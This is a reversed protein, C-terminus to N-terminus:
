KILSFNIQDFLFASSNEPLPKRNASYDASLQYQSGSKHIFLKRTDYQASAVAGDQNLLVVLQDECNSTPQGRIRFDQIVLNSNILRFRLSMALTSDKANTSINVCDSILDKTKPYYITGL